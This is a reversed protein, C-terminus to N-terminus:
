YGSATGLGQTESWPRNDAVQLMTWARQKQGPGVTLSRFCEGLRTNRALARFCQRPGTNICSRSNTVQLIAWAKHKWHLNIVNNYWCM